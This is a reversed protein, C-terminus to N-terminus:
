VNGRSTRFARNDPDNFFREVFHDDRQRWAENLGSQEALNNPVSAIHRWDGFRRDDTGDRLAKNVELLAEVDQVYKFTMTGDTDTQVWVKDGTEKDLGFLQFSGDWIPEGQYVTMM